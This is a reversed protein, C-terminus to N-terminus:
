SRLRLNSSFLRRATRKSGLAYRTPARTSMMPLIVFMFGTGPTVKALPRRRQLLHGKELLQDYASSSGQGYLIVEVRLSRDDLAPHVSYWAMGCETVNGHPLTDVVASSHKTFPRTLLATFPFSLPSHRRALVMDHRKVLDIRKLSTNERTGLKENSPSNRYLGMEVSTTTQPARLELELSARAKLSREAVCSARRSGWPGIRRLVSM